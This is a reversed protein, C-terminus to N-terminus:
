IGHHELVEEIRKEIRLCLRSQQLSTTGCEYRTGRVVRPEGSGDPIMAESGGEIGCYPCRKLQQESRESSM